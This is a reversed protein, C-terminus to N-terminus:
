ASGMSMEEISVSIGSATPLMGKLDLISKNKARLLVTGNPMLTLTLRDHDVLGLARRIDAPITIQGKSNLTSQSM